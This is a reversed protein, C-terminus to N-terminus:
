EEEEPLELLKGAGNYFGEADVQILGDMAPQLYRLLSQVMDWDEDVIVHDPIRIAIMQRSQTLGEVVQKKAKSRGPKGILATFRAV